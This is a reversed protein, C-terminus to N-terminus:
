GGPEGEWHLGGDGSCHCWLWMARKGFVFELRKANNNPAFWFGSGEWHDRGPVPGNPDSAPQDREPSFGTLRLYCSTLQLVVVLGDSWSSACILVTCRGKGGSGQSSWGGTVICEWVSVYVCVLRLVHGRARQSECVCIFIARTGCVEGWGQQM